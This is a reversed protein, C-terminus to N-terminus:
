TIEVIKHKSTAGRLIKIRTKAVKYHAALAEVLETNAAGDIPRSKLEVILSDESQIIQTTRKNPKVIIHIKM